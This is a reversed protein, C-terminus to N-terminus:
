ASIIWSMWTSAVKGVAGLEDGHMVGDAARGRLAHRALDGRGFALDDEVFAGLPDQDLDGVRAVPRDLDPGVVVEVLGVGREAEIAVLGAAHAEVDRGARGHAELGPRRALHREHRERALALDVAEPLVDHTREPPRGSM